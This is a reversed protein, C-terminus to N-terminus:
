IIMRVWVLESQNYYEKEEELDIICDALAFSNMKYSEQDNLILVANSQVKGKLFYSLGAKKSYNDALPLQLKKFYEKKTFHGIADAVYEYFCTLVSAPNGPLAFVLTQNYVGFYFPKGPKQKVKHFIKKVGCKQLATTVFDYDGVSVGGTLIIMDSSFSRKVANIIDTEDDDVTEIAVPLIGIQNLAANIGFSNSEYVKGDALVEGPRILEKGTTIISVTPNAFVQVHTMGLGALFSISAPTLLKGKNLVIEGKKTQSGKLRVNSGKKLRNDNIKIGSGIKSVNEQMVVTDTGAPMVAGTFIRLAAGKEITGSFYNGAQVEGAIYLDSSGDWNDFAFAYGDMASQHFHPSDIPSCIHEALALGTAEKLPMLAVRTNTCHNAIHLRAEEASLM